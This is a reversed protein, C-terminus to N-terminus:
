DKRGIRFKNRYGCNECEVSKYVRGVRTKGKLKALCKKCFKRRYSGLKINYKMALRKIKRIGESTFDERRFFEEIKKQVDGRFIKKKM